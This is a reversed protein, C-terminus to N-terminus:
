KEIENKCVADSKCWADILAVNDIRTEIEKKITQKINWVKTDTMM